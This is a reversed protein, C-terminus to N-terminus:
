CTTRRRSTRTRPATTTSRSRSTTSSPSSRSARCSTRIARACSRRCARTRRTPSTSRAGDDTDQDFTITGGGVIKFGEDEIHKRIAALEAPTKDYPVHVSKFNVYPTRLTKIMELAKDLPFERLSYSAVGLKIEHPPAPDARTSSGAPSSARARAPTGAVGIAAGAVTAAATTLFTRRPVRSDTM